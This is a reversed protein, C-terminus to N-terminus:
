RGVRLVGVDVIGKTKAKIEFEAPSHGAIMLRYRGPALRDAVFRGARNTFFGRDKWGKALATDVPVITGTALALPGDPSALVGVAIRSADSGIMSRYGSGYGPFIEINGAGLDYGDPLPDVKVDYRGIGYARNVPVLAPGFWGSRAIVRDGSMIQAKSGSLTEHLPAIVFADDVSRGVAFTGGAFGILSRLNWDSTNSTRGGPGATELRNHNVVLDFRNNIYALRGSAATEGRDRTYRVAGSVEGLRGESTRSVEVETRGRGSDYRADAYDRRGLRLSLGVAIRDEDSRPDRSMTRTATMNLGIRGFSRGLSLDIRRVDFGPKRVKTYGGGIGLSIDFPAQWQVLAATQLAQSNRAERAFADQFSVSRYIASANVRLDSAERLSFDGRYDVSAAYGMGGRRYDMSAAGEVQVFGLRNGVVVVGGIQGARSTSQGDVGVTLMDSIGHYAYGTAAPSLGYQFRGRDRVGASAGFETTGRTLLSSSNFVNFDVIERRGGVDEVVLQVQNPGTALPFDGIDYRGAELRITQVRIQNVIVDVSSARELTFDRRGIPRTNQFPRITSYAREIGIGLIRGSGQFSTSSPTFEGVTMRLAQDFSDRTARIERRLWREGNYSAGGTLTVGGFGGINAIGNLDARVRAFGSAPGGHVYRQTAAVNVGAAFPAAPVYSSPVPVDPQPQLRLAAPLTADPALTAAVELALSDFRIKLGPIDLETFDVRPRGAIRGELETLMRREIVPAILATLRRADIEGDGKADVAISITGLFKGNLKLSVELPTRVPKIRGLPSAGAQPQPQDIMAVQVQAAAPAAMQAAALACCVATRSLDGAAPQRLRSM